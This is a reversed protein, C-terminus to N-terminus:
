CEGKIDFSNWWGKVQHADSQKAKSQKLNTDNIFGKIKKDDVRDCHKGVYDKVRGRTMDIAVSRQM